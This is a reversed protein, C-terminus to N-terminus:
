NHLLTSINLAQSYAIVINGRRVDKTWAAVDDNMTQEDGTITMTTYVNDGDNMTTYDPKWTM